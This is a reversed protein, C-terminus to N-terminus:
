EELINQANEWSEDLQEEWQLLHELMGRVWANKKLKSTIEVRASRIAKLGIRIKKLANVIATARIGSDEDSEDMISNVVFKAEDVSCRAASYASLAASINEPSAMTRSRRKTEKKPETKKTAKTTKKKPTRTKTAM